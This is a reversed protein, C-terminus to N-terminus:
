FKRNPDTGIDYGTSSISNNADMKNSTFVDGSDLHPKYNSVAPM